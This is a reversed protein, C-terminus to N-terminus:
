AQAAPPPASAMLLWRKFNEIAERLAPTEGQELFALTLGQISAIVLVTLSQEDVRLTHGREGGEAVLRAILRRYRDNVYSTTRKLAPDTVSEAVLGFYAIQLEPDATIGEWLRGFGASIIAEPEKLGSIAEEVQDILRDGVRRVVEEFLQERSPYYYHVMRKSVGAEDAIRQVSTAAYGHKGLSRLAAELIREAQQAGKATPQGM